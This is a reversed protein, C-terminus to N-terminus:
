GRAAQVLDRVRAPDVPRRVDGDEKLSTGVIVGDATGLLQVVNDPTVGSGVLVPHDPLAARVIRLDEGDAASGTATGTVIVADAHGRHVLDRAADALRFGQPPTAHKVAVDAIIEIGRDLLQRQRLTAAAQGEIRGQDTFMVGTHVNVRIFGAGAASAVALAARADNRLVNVGVLASEGAAVTLERTVVAMEAVVWPEVRDAHFPADGFNEVIFGDLGENMLAEADKVAAQRLAQRDGGWRPSGPLPWLHVVGLLRSKGPEAKIRNTM